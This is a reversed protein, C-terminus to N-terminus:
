EVSSALVYLPSFLTNLLPHQSLQVTVHLFIFSPWRRICCVVIFEFHILSKFTLGLVMFFGLLFCATFDQVNSMAINWQIYRGLCPFCFFFYFFPVVGFQFTKACCLFDDVFYFCGVSHSFMNVLIDSICNIGM